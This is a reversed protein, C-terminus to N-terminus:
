FFSVLVLHFIIKKSLTRRYMNFKELLPYVSDASEKILSRTGAKIRTAHSFTPNPFIQKLSKLSVALCVCGTSYKRSIECVSVTFFVAYLLMFFWYSKSYNFKKLCSNRIIMITAHSFTPNPFIPKPKNLQCFPLCLRRFIESQDWPSICCFLQM